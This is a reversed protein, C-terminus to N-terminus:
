KSFNNLYLSYNGLRVIEKFNESIELEISYDFSEPRRAYDTVILYRVNREHCLGSRYVIIPNDLFIPIGYGRFYLTDNPSIVKKVEEYFKKQYSEKKISSSFKFPKIDNLFYYFDDNNGKFSLTVVSLNSIIYHIILFLYFYKKYNKFVENDRFFKSTLLSLLFISAIVAYSFFRFHDGRVLFFWLSVFVIFFYLFLELDSIKRLNKFIFFSIFFFSVFYEFRLYRILAFPIKSPQLIEAAGTRYAFFAKYIGVIEKISYFLFMISNYIVIFIILSYILLLLHKKINENKYYRYVILGLFPFISFYLLQIKSIFSISFLFMSLILMKKKNTNDYQIFYIIGLSFYFLSIMEGWCGSSLWYITVSSSVLLIFILSSDLGIKNKLSLFVIILFFLSYIFVIFRPLYINFPIFYKLPIFILNLPWLDKAIMYENEQFKYKFNGNLYFYKISYLYDSEDSGIDLNLILYVNLLIYYVVIIFILIYFLKKYKLKKFLMIVNSIFNYFTQKYRFVFYFLLFLIIFKLILDRIYTIFNYSFEKGEILFKLIYEVFNNVYFYIIIFIVISSIFQIYFSKIFKKLRLKM